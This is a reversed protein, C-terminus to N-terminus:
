LKYNIKIQKWVFPFCNKVALLNQFTSYFQSEKYFSEVHSYIMKYISSVIKTLRKASCQKSAVVSCCGIQMKQANKSALDM